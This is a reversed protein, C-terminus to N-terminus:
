VISNRYVDAVADAIVDWNNERAQRSQEIQIGNMGSTTIRNVINKPNSGSLGGSRELRVEIGSGAARLATRITNVMRKRFGVGAGGGVGIYNNTWGHFAVASVYKRTFLEGLLPFSHESIETSTIHWRASAGGGAKWGMCRWCCAFKNGLAKQVRKAQDDTSKEIDGGHPALVILECGAGSVREILESAKRADAESLDTNTVKTDIFFDRENPDEIGLRQLGDPGICVGKGKNIQTITYLAFVGDGDGIRIQRHLGSGSRKLKNLTVLDATCHERHAHGRNLTSSTSDKRLGVKIKM